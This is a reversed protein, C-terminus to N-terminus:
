TGNSAGMMAAIVGDHYESKTEAARERELYAQPTLRPPAPRDPRQYAVM